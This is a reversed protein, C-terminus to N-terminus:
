GQGKFYYIAVKKDQNNKKKLNIFNNVIQTFKKLRDPITKFVVMGDNRKEQAILVYPYVAGDLEPMVITQGMFGGFM